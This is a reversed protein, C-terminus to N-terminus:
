GRKFENIGRYPDRINKSNRALEHMIGKLYERKKNKLHRSIGCGVNNLNSKNGKVGKPAYPKWSADGTSGTKPWPELKKGPREWKEL